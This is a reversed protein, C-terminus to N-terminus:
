GHTRGNKRTQARALEALKYYILRARDRVRTVRGMQHTSNSCMEFSTRRTSCAQAQNLNLELRAQWNFVRNSEARNVANSEDSAHM